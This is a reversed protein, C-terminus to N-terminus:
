CAPRGPECREVVWRRFGVTRPRRDADGAVPTPAASSELVIENPGERWVDAPVPWSVTQWGAGLPRPELAHGNISVGLSTGPERPQVEAQMRSPARSEISALVTARRDAMWRTPGEPAPDSGRWGAGFAVEAGVGLWLEHVPQNAGMLVPVQAECVLVRWDEARDTWGRALIRTGREGLGLVLTAAEGGDNVNLLIRYVTGDPAPGQVGDDAMRRELAARDAATYREVAFGNVDGGHQDSVVPRLPSTAAVYLLATAEYPHFGNFSLRLGGSGNAKSVDTWRRHGIAECPQRGKVEYLPLRSMDLPLRLDDGPAYTLRQEIRGDASAVAVVIGADTRVIPWGGARLRGGGVDSSEAFMGALRPSVDSLERSIPRTDAVVIPAPSSGAAIVYHSRLSSAAARSDDSLRLVRALGPWVGAVLITDTGRRAIRDALAEGPLEVPALRYGLAALAEAGERFAFVRYNDSLLFEVPGVERRIPGVLRKGGTATAYQYTLMADNEYNEDVFAARPPIWDILAAFYRGHYTKGRLNNHALNVSVARLPIAAALVTAAIAAARSLRVRRAPPRLAFAALPWAMVFAPVLFGKLDSDFNIALAIACAAGGGFLLALKPARRIAIGLGIAVLVVGPWTLEDVLFGAAIPVRTTVLTPLDFKFMLDEFRGGRLVYWFDAFSAIRSELQPARQFTRIAIFLYSSLGLLVLAVTAAMTKLRFAFRWDVLAAFLVFVPVIAVISLHNGLALASWAVASYFDRPRRTEAWDVLRFVALVQLAAALTYVEAIISDWWFYRGAAAGLALAAAGPRSAGVRRFILYLVGVTLAGFCASMFNARWAPTAVPIWSFVHGILIYLPYGPAHATGLVAGLLQFKPTDEPGGLDPLM